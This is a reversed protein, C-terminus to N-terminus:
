FEYVNELVCSLNPKGVQLKKSVTSSLTIKVPKHSWEASAGESKLDYSVKLTDKAGLKKTIAVAPAKRALNYSTEATYDGQTLTYKASLVNKQNFAVNAKHGKAVTVTAEGAVLNDKNSYWGKLTTAKSALSGDWTAGVQYKKTGAEYKSNLTVGKPAKYDATLVVDKLSKANQVTKDSLALSANFKNRKWKLTANGGLGVNSKGFGPGINSVTLTAKPTVSSDKGM